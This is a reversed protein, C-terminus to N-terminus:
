LGSSESERRSLSIELNGNLCRLEDLMNKVPIGERLTIEYTLRFMSGMNATKVNTLHYESTYTKLVDDFINEYNLSEPITIRLQRTLDERKQGIHLATYLMMMGGMIGAFLFAYGLYGTGTMLGAAMAIFIASIERGTGSASRFRVLSFAGAIAVGTGINGNVMMIVVCVAAPLLALTLIFSESSRMKWQTMTSLMLGIVLAAGICFLFDAPQIVNSFETDFIGRFLTEPM